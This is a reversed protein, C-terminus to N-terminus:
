YIGYVYKILGYSSSTASRKNFYGTNGSYYLYLALYASEDSIQVSRGTSSSSFLARPVEMTCYVDDDTVTGFFLYSSYSNFNAWSGSTASGSWVLVRSGAKPIIASGIDTTLEPIYIKWPSFLEVAHSRSAMGGFALSPSTPNPNINLPVNIKPATEIRTTSGGYLDTFTVTVNYADQDSTQGFVSSGRLGSIASSYGGSSAGVKRVLITFNGTNGSLSVTASVTVRIASGSILPVFNNNEVYGREIVVSSIVPKNYTVYTVSVSKAASRRGRSDQAIVSFTKTGATTFTSTTYTGSGSSATVEASASGSIIFKSITVGTGGTPTSSFSLKVKSISTGYQSGTSPVRSATVTPTAPVISSNVTLTFSFTQSLVLGSGKNTTVTFTGTTSEANSIDNLWSSPVSFSFSTATSASICTGTHGLVSYTITDTYSAKEKNVGITYTSNTTNITMSPINLTSTRPINTLTLSGSAVIEGPLYNTWNGNGDWTEPRSLKAYCSVTKTGDEEHAVVTTRGSWFTCSHYNASYNPDMYTDVSSSPTVDVNNIKVVLSSNFGRYYYGNYAELLLSWTLTSTNATQNTGTETVTLTLKYNGSHLTSSGTWSAM